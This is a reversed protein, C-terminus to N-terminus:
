DSDESWVGLSVKFREKRRGWVRLLVVFEVDGGYIRFRMKCSDM